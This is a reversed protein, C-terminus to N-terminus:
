ELAGIRDLVVALMERTCVGQPNSGDLVEKAKAKKWSAAAWPSAEDTPLIRVFGLADSRRTYAGVKVRAGIARAKAPTTTTSRGGIAGITQADPGVWIEVHAARNTSPGYLVLDGPELEAKAIREGGYTGKWLGDATTDADAPWRGVAAGLWMVLGSCDFYTPGQAGWVYWHNGEDALRKALAVFEARM